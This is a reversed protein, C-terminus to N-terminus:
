HGRMARALTPASHEEDDYKWLALDVDFPVRQMISKPKRGRQKRRYKRLYLKSRIARLAPTRDSPEEGKTILNQVYRINVEREHAVKHMSGLKKYLKALRPPTAPHIFLNRNM